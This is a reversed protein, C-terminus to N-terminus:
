AHILLQTILSLIEDCLLALWDRLVLLYKKVDDSAVIALSSLRSLIILHHM